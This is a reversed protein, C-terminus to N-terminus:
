RRDEQSLWEIYSSRCYGSGALLDAQAELLQRNLVDDAELLTDVDKLYKSQALLSMALEIESPPSKYNVPQKSLGTNDIPPTLLPRMWFALSLMCADGERGISYKYSSLLRISCPPQATLLLSCLWKGLLVGFSNVLQASSLKALDCEPPTLSLVSPLLDSIGREFEAHQRMNEITPKVLNCMGAQDVVSRDIQTTVFFVWPNTQHAVQYSLMQALASFTQATQDENQTPVLSDCLDLNVWDYPGYKRFESWAKSNQNAIDQFRFNKVTSEKRVSDHMNIAAECVFSQALAAPSELASNFGLFQMVCDHSTVTNCVTQLDLLDDGPLTFCRLRRKGHSPVAFPLLEDSPVDPGGWTAPSSEPKRKLQQILQDIASNWQHERIFQKHTRHWARFDTRGSVPVHVPMADQIVDDALDSPEIGLNESM